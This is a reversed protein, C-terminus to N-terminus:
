YGMETKLAQDIWVWGFPMVYTDDNIWRFEGYYNKVWPWYAQSIAKVALPIAPVENLIYVAAEKIIASRKEADEESQMAKAYADFKADEFQYADRSAWSSWNNPMDRVPNGSGYGMRTMDYVRDKISQRYTAAPEVNINLTVGCKEFDSKMLAAQQQVSASPPFYWEVTVGNPYGADALMQKAEAPNYDYLMATEAPLESIPTYMDTLSPYIPWWHKPLELDGAKRLAAYGNLDTCRMLARRVDRNDFPPKKTNFAFTGGFSIPLRDQLLEPATADLTAWHTAYVSPGGDSQATRLAAEEFSEDNALPIIFEDLFPLKYEKGDITTTGRYNPNREMTFYQDEVYEKFMFPGTGAHNKWESARGGELLEPPSIFGKRSLGLTANLIFDYEAFEIHVENGQATVKADKNALLSAGEGIKQWHRIDSAIDEATLARADMFSKQHETPAWYVDSKVKWVIKQRSVEWSDILNGKIYKMPIAGILKFDFANNGRPGYTDFDGIMPTEQILENYWTRGGQGDAPDPSGPKNGWRPALTFTGGYQPTGDSVAASGAEADGAAFAFSTALLMSMLVFALLKKM